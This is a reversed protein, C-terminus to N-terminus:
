AVTLLSAVGGAALAVFLNDFGGVFPLSEALTGAGAATFVAWAGGVLQLNAHPCTARLFAM